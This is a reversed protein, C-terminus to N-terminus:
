EDDEGGLKVGLPELVDEAILRIADDIEETMWDEFSDWIDDFEGTEVNWLYVKDDNEKVNFCLPDGYNRFAFVVFGEPLAFNAKAEDSNLEEYTDFDLDLTADHEKTSLMVVDFLLGGDCLKVWDLFQKPVEGLLNKVKLSASMSGSLLCHYVDFDVLNEVNDKMVGTTYKEKLRALNVFGM